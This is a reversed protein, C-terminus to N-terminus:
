EMGLPHVFMVALDWALHALVGPFLSGSAARLAGWFAGCALALGVLVPEGSALHCLSYLISASFVSAWPPASRAIWTQLAGRFVLEESAVVFATPALLIAGAGSDLLRYLDAVRPSLAPWARVAVPFLLYTAAIQVLAATAGLAVHRPAPMRLRRLSPDLALCLADLALAAGAIPLWIGALGSAAFAGNWLALCAAALLM